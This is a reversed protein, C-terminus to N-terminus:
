NSKVIGLKYIDNYFGPYSKTVVNPNAIGIPFLLALPAFAMAMRHDEYTDIVVMKQTPSQIKKAELHLSANTITVSAGLKTLENQLAVLRDTEKIKLTHLGKLNCAIGLGYCTVAITQAIDPTNALNLTLSPIIATKLKTLTITFDSNFHTSVGLKEYITVLASDGQISHKKYSSLTITMNKSLAVASYYYSASSWDSEVTVTVNEISSTAAVSITQGKFTTNIGVSQLLAQTMKIYPLSTITGVLTIHLGQPLCPAVLMLASIFQSSVGAEISITNKFSTAPAIQLPPYGEKNLYSIRAGLNNLATVLVGIPRQQMRESGTLIKTTKTVIATYATLFRMATGAHHVDIINPTQALANLLVQTDDSNSVNNININPFLAQLILLRNSESKSGTIAIHANTVENNKSLTAIM